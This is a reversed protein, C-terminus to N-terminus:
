TFLFYPLLFCYYLFPQKICRECYRFKILQDITQLINKQVFLESIESFDLRPFHWVLNHINPYLTLLWFLITSHRISCMVHCPLLLVFLHEEFSSNQIQSRLFCKHLLENNVLNELFSNWQMCKEINKDVLTFYSKQWIGIKSSCEEIAAKSTVM